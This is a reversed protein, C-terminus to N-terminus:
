LAAKGHARRLAKGGDAPVLDAILEAIHAAAAPRGLRASAARMADVAARDDRLRDIEQAERDRADPTREVRGSQKQRGRRM